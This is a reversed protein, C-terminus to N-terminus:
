PPAARPACSTAASCTLLPWSPECGHTECPPYLPAAPRAPITLYESQPPGPWAEHQCCAHMPESRWSEKTVLVYLVHSVRSLM